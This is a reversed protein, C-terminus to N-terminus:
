KRVFWLSVALLINKVWRPLGLMFTSAKAKQARETARKREEERAKERAKERETVIRQREANNDNNQYRAAMKRCYDERSGGCYRPDYVAYWYSESSLDPEEQPLSATHPHKEEDTTDSDEFEVNYFDGDEDVFLDGLGAPTLRDKIREFHDKDITIYM